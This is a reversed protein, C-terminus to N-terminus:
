LVGGGHGKPELMADLVWGGNADKSFVAACATPFANM